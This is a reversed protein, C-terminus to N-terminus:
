RRVLTAKSALLVAKEKQQAKTWEPDDHSSPWGIINAHRSPPEKSEVELEESRVAHATIIAAGHLSRGEGLYTDGIQWLRDRPQEGHRFVSTEGCAPNPLFAAPKVMTANFLRSSTLFRALEEDDHVHEQLGSPLTMSVPPHAIMQSLRQRWRKLIACM